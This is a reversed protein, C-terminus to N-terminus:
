DMARVYAATGARHGRLSGAARRARHRRRGCYHSAPVSCRPRCRRDPTTGGGYAEEAANLAKMESWGAVRRIVDLRAVPVQRPDTVVLRFVDPTVPEPGAAFTLVGCRGRGARRTAGREISALEAPGRTLVTPQRVRSHVGLTAGDTYRLVHRGPGGNRLGFLM